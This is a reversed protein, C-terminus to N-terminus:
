NARTEDTGHNNDKKDGMVVGGFIIIKETVVFKMLLEKIRKLMELIIRKPQMVPYTCQLMPIDEDAIPEQLMDIYSKVLHRSGTNSLDNRYCSKDTIVEIDSATRNADKNINEAAQHLCALLDLSLQDCDSKDLNHMAAVLTGIGNLIFGNNLSSMIAGQVDQVVDRNAIHDHTSGGVRLKPRRVCVLDNLIEMFLSLVRSDKIHGAKCEHINKMVTSVMDAYFATAKSPNAYYPHLKSTTTTDQEPIIGHFELYSNAWHLVDATFVNKEPTIIFEEPTVPQKGAIAALVRLEWPLDQGAIRQEPSFGFVGIPGLGQELRPVNMRKIKSLISSDVMPAIIALGKEDTYEELYRTLDELLMSGMAVGADFVIVNMNIHNYETGIGANLMGELSTIARIRYDYPPTEVDFQKDTEQSSQTFSIFDWSVKPSAAYIERMAKALELDGGSSSMAQIFAICGAVQCIHEENNPDLGLYTTLEETTFSMAEFSREVKAFIREVLKKYSFMDMNVQKDLKKELCFKLFDMALLMSTTTGDKAKADVREGIYTILDKVYRQLPSIYEFSKLIRIGDRTFINPSFIDNNTDVLMAYKSRPGCHEALNNRLDTLTSLIIPRVDDLSTSNTIDINTDVIDRRIDSM